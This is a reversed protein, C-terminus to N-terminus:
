EGNYSDDKDPESDFKWNLKPMDTLYVKSKAVAERFYSSNDCLDDVFFNIEEKLTEEDVFNRRFMEMTDLPVNHINGFDTTLTKIYVDYGHELATYIYHNISSLKCFVGTIALDSDNTSKMVREVIDHILIIAKTSRERDWKYQGNTMNFMDTELLFLGPYNKHVYTSKGSGPLGRVILMRGM